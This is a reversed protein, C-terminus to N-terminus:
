PGSPATFLRSSGEGPEQPGTIQGPERGGNPQETM